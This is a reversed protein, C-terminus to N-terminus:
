PAGTSHPSSRSDPESKPARIQIESTPSDEMPRSGRPGHDGARHRTRWISGLLPLTLLAYPIMNQLWTAAPWPIGIAGFLQETFSNTNETQEIHLDSLACRNGNTLWHALIAANFPAAIRPWILWGGLAFVVIGLHLVSLYDM